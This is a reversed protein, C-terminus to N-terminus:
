FPFGSRPGFAAQHLHYFAMAGAELGEQVPVSSGTLVWTSEFQASLSPGFLESEGLDDPGEQVAAVPGPHRQRLAQQRQRLGERGRDDRQM